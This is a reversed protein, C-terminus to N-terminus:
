RTIECPVVPFSDILITAKAFERDDMEELLQSRYYEAEDSGNQEAISYFTFALSKDLPIITGRETNDNQFKHGLEVMSAKHGYKAAKCFLNLSKIEDNLTEDGCCSANAAKYMAEIDEEDAETEWAYRKM